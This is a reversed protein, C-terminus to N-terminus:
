AERGPIYIHMMYRGQADVDKKVSAEERLNREVNESSELERAPLQLNRRHLLSGRFTCSLYM